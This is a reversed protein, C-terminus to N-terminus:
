SVSIRPGQSNAEPPEILIVTETVVSEKKTVSQILTNELSVIITYGLEVDTM